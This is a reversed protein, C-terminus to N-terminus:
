DSHGNENYMVTTDHDDFDESAPDLPTQHLCSKLGDRHDLGGAHGNEQCFIHHKKYDSLQPVLRDNIVIDAQSIHESGFPPSPWSAM